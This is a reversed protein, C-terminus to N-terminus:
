EELLRCVFGWPGGSNQIKLVLDNAGKKFTVKVKDDDPWVGRGTKEWHEHVLKGNLWVKVSDDSGIGLVGRTEEPMDIRAWAYGVLYWNDFPGTLDIVGYESKLLSWQYENEGITVKPRFKDTPILDIDFFAKATKDDPFYGEGNWPINTPGLFLWNKMFRGPELGEYTALSLDPKENSITIGGSTKQGTSQSVDTSKRGFEFGQLYWKGDQYMTTITAECLLSGQRCLYVPYTNGNHPKEPWPPTGLLDFEDASNGFLGLVADFQGAAIERIGEDDILKLLLGKDRHAIASYLTLMTKLPTSQDEYTGGALIRAFELKAEELVETDWSDRLGRYQRPLDALTTGDKDPWLFALHFMGNGMPGSFHRCTVAVQNNISDVMTAPWNSDVFIASQPLIIRCYILNNTYGVNGTLHWLANNPQIKIQDRFKCVVIYRFMEGPKVPNTFHLTYDASQASIKDTDFQLLNGQLDYISPEELISSGKIRHQKGPQSSTNPKEQLSAFTVLHEDEVRAIIITASEIPEREAEKEAEVWKYMEILDDVMPDDVTVTPNKNPALIAKRGAEVAVTRTPTEAIVKGKKVTVETKQAFTITQVALIAIACVKIINSKM